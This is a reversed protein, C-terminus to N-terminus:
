IVLGLFTVSWGVWGVSWGVMVLQGVMWEGPLSVCGWISWSHLAFMMYIQDVLFLFDSIVSIWMLFCVPFVFSIRPYLHDCSFSFHRSIGCDGQKFGAEFWDLKDGRLFFDVSFVSM